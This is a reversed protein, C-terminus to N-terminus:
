VLDPPGRASPSLEEQDTLAASQAPILRALVRTEPANFTPLAFSAAFVSTGDPCPETKEVPQGDAGITITTVNVGSCIVIDSGVDHNAGRADALTLGAFVVAFTALYVSIARLMVPHIAPAHLRLLPAFTAPYRQGRQWGM